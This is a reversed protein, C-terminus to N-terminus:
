KVNKNHYIRENNFDMILAKAFEKMYHEPKNHQYWIDKETYLGELHKAQVGMLFERKINSLKYAIYDLKDVPKITEFNFIIDSEFRRLISMQHETKIDPVIIYFDYSPKKKAIEQFELLKAAMVEDWLASHGLTMLQETLVTKSVNLKRNHALDLIFTVTKDVSHTFNEVFVQLYKRYNPTKYFEKYTQDLFSQLHTALRRNRNVDNGTIGIVYLAM